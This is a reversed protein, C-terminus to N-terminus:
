TLSTASRFEPTTNFILLSRKVPNTFFVFYPACVSTQCSLTQRPIFFPPVVPVEAGFSLLAEVQIRPRSTALSGSIVQFRVLHDTVMLRGRELLESIAYRPLSPRKRIGIGECFDLDAKFLSKGKIAVFQTM